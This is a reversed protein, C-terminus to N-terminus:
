DVWKGICKLFAEARQAATANVSEWGAQPKGFGYQSEYDLVELLTNIFGQRLTTPLTECAEHMANLDHLYDPLQHVDGGELSAVEGNPGHYVHEGLSNVCFFKWGCAEAIARNQDEAKM